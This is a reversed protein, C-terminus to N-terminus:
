NEDSEADGIQPLPHKKSQKAGLKELKACSNLISQGGPVLKKKGDEFAAAANDIAKGIANYKEMFMAVREIIENALAYVKEHNEAQAIQRWTLSVIRLAAFLTQEDAIFVNSEMAKRWLDPQANLASWLAGTHPVFMIVYDMKVKPPQIYSSYDKTSLEKVHKQISDVHAKLFQQREEETEANVYDMFATLSVKSDIIIERNNDLHLVVDPRMISGSDSKVTNGSADRITTQIDYHRGRTLGQSELLEDLVREGWDGQVKSRHKFVRALEDASQKAAESHRMMNELNAKMESSMETQKLTSNHMTEKMKEITERLPTVIQGLNTNSSEAFEKQRQKLMEDTASKMQASVKELTEDFRAQQAAIAESHRKEQASLADASSKEKEKLLKEFHAETESKSQALRRESDAKAEELQSKLSTCLTEYNAKEAEQQWKLREIETVLKQRKSRAILLGILLGKVIGILIFLIAEM